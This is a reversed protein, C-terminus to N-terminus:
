VEDEALQQRLSFYFKSGIGYVSEVKLSSDMLELLKCTLSMGFSVGDTEKDSAYEIQEFESFMKSVDEPKIGIGTDKVYIDLVISDPYDESAKSNIGLIISGKETYKVANAIINSIIQVIRSKDGILAVPLKEQKDIVFVLNKNEIVPKMNNTVEEIMEAVKYPAPVIELKGAEIGSFDLIDTILSLLKNGIAEINELYPILQKDKNEKLVKENIGLISNVPTRLEHSVNSLFASKAESAAIARESMDILRDREKKEADIDESLWLVKELRGLENRASVIFRGRRWIGDKNMYEVSITDKDKLRKALTSLDIFRMVDDYSMEHCVAGMVKRIMAQAHVRSKGVVDNVIKSDSKIETFTDTAVDLEHVTMYINAISSVRTNLINIAEDAKQSAKKEEDIDEIMFLVRSITGDANRGSVIFRAKRWEKKSSMFEATITDHDKMRENLTSLNVFSTIREVSSPDTFRDLADKIMITADNGKRGVMDSADNHNNQVETFTDNLLDIEHMSIYIDATSSLQSSLNEAIMGRKNSRTMIVSIIVIVAIVLVITFLLTANLSKIIRTSNKVSVSHWGDRIPVVYAIYNNEDYNFEFSDADTANLKKILEGGLSNDQNSYDKGIEDKDSHAVVVGESNLVMEIDSDGSIVAEETLMQIRDLSVDVSIVSEGDSLTKGLAIMVNGSQVDVYPDLMTIQGPEEMARTYWPRETPEYGAPPIWNTGSFFRGNIYGYLGTLNENVANRIATSQSVLFEQIEADSKNDELMKDLSYASLKISDINTSLYMNVKEASNKATLEGQQIINEKKTKYLMSYYMFIIGAFFLAVIVTLIVTRIYMRKEEDSKIRRLKM